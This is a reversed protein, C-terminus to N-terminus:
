GSRKSRVVVGTAANYRGSRAQLMAERWIGAVPAGRVEAERRKRYNTYFIDALQGGHQVQGPLVPVPLHLALRGGDEVYRWKRLKSMTPDKEQDPRKGPSKRWSM